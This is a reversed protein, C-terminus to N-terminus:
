LRSWAEVPTLNHKFFMGVYPEPLYIKKRVFVYDVSVDEAIFSGLINVEPDTDLDSEMAESTPVYLTAGIHHLSLTLCDTCIVAGCTVKGKPPSPPIEGNLRPREMQPNYSSM